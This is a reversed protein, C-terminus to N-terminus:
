EDKKVYAGGFTDAFGQALGEPDKKDEEIQAAVQENIKEEEQKKEEHIKEDRKKKEEEAKAEAAKIREQEEKEAKEKAIRTKEAAERAVREAELKQNESWKFYALFGLAATLFIHWRDLIWKVVKKFNSM